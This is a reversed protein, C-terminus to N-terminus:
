TAPAYIDYTSHAIKRGRAKEVAPAEVSKLYEKVQADSVLVRRQIKYCGLRNESILRRITKPSVCLATAVGEVNHMLM